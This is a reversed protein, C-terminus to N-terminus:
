SSHCSLFVCDFNSKTQMIEQYKRECYFADYCFLFDNSRSFFYETKLTNIKNLDGKKHTPVVNTKEM